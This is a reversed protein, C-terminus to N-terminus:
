AAAEDFKTRENGFVDWGARTQRGFLDARRRLGHCRRDIEEYFEEPKRSHQRRIGPFDGRFPQHRPDGITGILILEGMSRVRYGTGMAPKGSPFVKRWHIFSLYTFGWHKLAVIGEDLRPATIWSLLLCNVDALEGVPFALIEELSMTEYQARPGKKEGLESYTEFDWPFDAVILDYYHPKLDGFPWPPLPTFLPAIVNM